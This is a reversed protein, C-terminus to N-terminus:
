ESSAVSNTDAIRKRIREYGIWFKPWLRLACSTVLIVVWERRTLGDSWVADSVFIKQDRRSSTRVVVKQGLISPELLFTGYKIGLFRALAKMSDPTNSVLDEYSLAFANGRELQQVICANVAMPEYTQKIINWISPNRGVMRRDNLVARAVMRPNRALLLVRGEPFIQKWLTLITNPRGGVEKACWLRPKSRRATSNRFVRVIDKRILESVHSSGSEDTTWDADYGSRNFLSVSISHRRTHAFYSEPDWIQGGGSQKEDGSSNAPLKSLSWYEHPTLKPKRVFYKLKLEAPYVFVEDGGDLLSQFLTTGGKRPGYILLAQDIWPMNENAVVEDM